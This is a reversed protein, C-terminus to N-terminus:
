WNKSCFNAVLEDLRGARQIPTFAIGIITGKVREREREREREHIMALELKKRTQPFQSFVIVSKYTSLHTPIMYIYIKWVLCPFM